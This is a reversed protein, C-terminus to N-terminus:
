ANGQELIQNLKKYYPTRANYAPAPEEEPTLEAKLKAAIREIDSDTLSGSFSMEINAKNEPQKIKEPTHSFESLDYSNSVEDGDFVTDVFGKEKAEEATFWTEAAMMEILEDTAIETKKAYDNAISLDVKDLLEATTRCDDANGVMYTWGKHIMFFAGDSMRVEDAGLAVYTAASAALGDIHAIVKSKHQKLATNIARGAFVDGGPSNIRLNITSATIGNLEKVFAQASVGYWDDIVDYLYITAEDSDKNVVEFRKGPTELNKVILNM